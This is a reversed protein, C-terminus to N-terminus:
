QTRGQKTLAEGIEFTQASAMNALTKLQEDTLDGFFSCKKLVDIENM